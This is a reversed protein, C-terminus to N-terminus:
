VTPESVAVVVEDSGALPLAFRGPQCISLTRIGVDVQYRWMPTIAPNPEPRNPLKLYIRTSARGYPRAEVEKQHAPM